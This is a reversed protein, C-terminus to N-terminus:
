ETPGVPFCLSDCRPCQVDSELECSGCKEHTDHAPPLETYEDSFGCGHCQYVNM